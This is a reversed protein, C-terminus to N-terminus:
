ALWLTDSFAPRLEFPQQTLLMTNVEKATSHLRIHSSYQMFTPVQRTRSVSYVSRTRAPKLLPRREKGPRM